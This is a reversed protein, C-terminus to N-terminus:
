VVVDHEYEALRLEDVLRLYRIKGDMLRMLSMRKWCFGATVDLPMSERREGARAISDSGDDCFFPSDYEWLLADYVRSQMLIRM